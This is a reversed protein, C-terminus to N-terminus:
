ILPMEKTLIKMQGRVVSSKIEISITGLELIAIELASM